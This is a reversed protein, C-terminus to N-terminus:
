GKEGGCSVSDIESCYASQLLSFHELINRTKVYVTSRNLREGYEENRGFLEWTHWTVRTSKMQKVCVCNLHCYSM